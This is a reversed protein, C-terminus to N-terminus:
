YILVVFGIREFTILAPPCVISGVGLLGKGVGGVDLDDVGKDLLDVDNFFDTRILSGCLFAM